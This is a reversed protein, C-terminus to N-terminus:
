AEVLDGAMDQGDVRLIRKSKFLDLIGGENLHPTLNNLYKGNFSIYQENNYNGM